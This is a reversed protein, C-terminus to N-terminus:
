VTVDATHHLKRHYARHRQIQRLAKHRKQLLIKAEYLCQRLDEWMSPRHLSPPTPHTPMDLSITRRKFTFPDIDATAGM